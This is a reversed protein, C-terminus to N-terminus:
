ERVDPYDAAPANMPKGAPKKYSKAKMFESVSTDRGTANPSASGVDNNAFNISLKELQKGESQRDSIEKKTLPTSKEKEVYAMNRLPEKYNSPVVMPKTDGYYPMHSQMIDKEMMAQETYMKDVAPSNAIANYGANSGGM